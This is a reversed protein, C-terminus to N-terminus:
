GERKRKSSTKMKPEELFIKNQYCFHQLAIITAAEYDPTDSNVLSQLIMPVKLKEAAHSFARIIKRPKSPPEEQIASKPIDLLVVIDRSATRTSEGRLYFQHSIDRPAKLSIGLVFFSQLKSSKLIESLIKHALKKKSWKNIEAKMPSSTADISEKLATLIQYECPAAQHKNALNAVFRGEELYVTLGDEFILRLENSHFTSFNSSVLRSRWLTCVIIRVLCWHIRCRSMLQTSIQTSSLPVTCVISLRQLRPQWSIKQGVSQGTKSELLRKIAMGLINHEQSHHFALVSLIKSTFEPVTGFRIGVLPVSLKTCVKQLIKNEEASMDRVAGLFLCLQFNQNCTNNKSEPCQFCPLEEFMEHLTGAVIQPQMSDNKENPQLLDSYTSEIRDQLKIPEQKPSSRKWEYFLSILAKKNTKRLVVDVNSNLGKSRLFEMSCKQQLFELVQRKSDLGPPLGSSTESFNEENVMSLDVEIRCEMGKERITKNLNQAAKKWLSVVAHETPVITFGKEVKMSMKAMDDDFLFILERSGISPSSAGYLFSSVCRVLADRRGWWQSDDRNPRFSDPDSGPGKCLLVVKVDCRGLM